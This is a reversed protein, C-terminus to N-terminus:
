RVTTRGIDAEDGKGGTEKMGTGENSTKTANNANNSQNGVTKNNKNVSNETQYTLKSQRSTVTSRTLDLAFSIKYQFLVFCQM